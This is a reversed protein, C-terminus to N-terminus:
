AFRKNLGETGFFDDAELELITEKIADIFLDLDYDDAEEVWIRFDEADIKNINRM